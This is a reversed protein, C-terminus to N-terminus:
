LRGQLRSVLFVLLGFRIDFVSLMWVVLSVSVHGYERLAEDSDVTYISEYHTYKVSMNYIGMGIDVKGVAFFHDFYTQCM